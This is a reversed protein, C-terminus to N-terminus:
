AALAITAPDDDDNQATRRGSRPQSRPERRHLAKRGFLAAKLVTVVSAGRSTAAIAIAVVAVDILSAIDFTVFWAVLEPSAMSLIAVADGGLWNATALLVVVTALVVVHSARLGALGRLMPDFVATQAAKGLPSQPALIVLACCAALLLAFLNFLM